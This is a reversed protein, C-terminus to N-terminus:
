FIQMFGYPNKSKYYAYFKKFKRYYEGSKKVKEGKNYCEIALSFNGKKRFCYSLIFGAALINGCPSAIYSKPYGKKNFYDFWFSNIQMIGYDITGDKNKSKINYKFNSEIKAITYFIEKKINTHMQVTEFCHNFPVIDFM